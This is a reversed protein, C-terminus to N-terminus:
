TNDKMQNEVETENENNKTKKRKRVENIYWTLNDYCCAWIRYLKEHIEVIYLLNMIYEKKPFIFLTQENIYAINFHNKKHNWSFICTVSALKNGEGHLVIERSHSM